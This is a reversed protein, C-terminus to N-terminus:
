DTPFAPYPPAIPDSGCSQTVLYPSTYIGNEDLLLNGSPDTLRIRLVAGFQAQGFIVRIPTYSGQTLTISYASSPASDFNPQAMSYSQAINANDRTYGTYAFPGVWLFDIDDFPPYFQFTYIGTVPAFLYGRHNLIFETTSYEEQSDYVTAAPTADVDTVIYNIIQTTGTVVPTASDLGSPSFQSYTPNENNGFNNVYYAWQLGLNDCEDAPYIGPAERGYAPFPDAHGCEFAVLYPSPTTQDPNVIFKTDPDSNAQVSLQFNGETQSNAFIIRIEYYTEAVLLIEFDPSRGLAHDIDANSRDWDRLAKDGIWLEAIDNVGDFYFTYTDTIPAFLFGKHNVVYDSGDFTPSGYVSTDGPETTFGIVSTLGQTLPQANKYPYPSFAAYNDQQNNNLPPAPSTYIAYRLGANGCTTAPVPTTRTATTTTSETTLVTTITLSTITGTSTSSLSSIQTVFTTVSQTVRATATSTVATTSTATPQAGVLSLCDSSLASASASALSTFGTEIPAQRKMLTTVTLTESVTLSTTTTTETTSESEIIATTTSEITSQGTVTDTATETTSTGQTTTARPQIFQRCLASVEAPNQALLSSFPTLSTSSGSPQTSSSATGSSTSGPVISVTGSLSSVSSSSPSMTNSTRTTNGMPFPATPNAANTASGTPRTTADNSQGPAIAASGSVTGTTTVLIPVTTTATVTSTVVSPVGASFVTLQRVNVDVRVSVSVSVAVYIIDGNQGTRLVTAGSPLGANVVNANNNAANAPTQASGFTKASVTVSNAPAAPTAYVGLGNAYQTKPCNCANSQIVGGPGGYRYLTPIAASVAQAFLIFHM